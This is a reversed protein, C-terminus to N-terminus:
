PNKSQFEFFHSLSDPNNCAQGFKAGEENEVAGSYAIKMVSVTGNYAM